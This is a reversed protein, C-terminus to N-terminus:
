SDDLYENVNYFAKGLFYCLLAVKFKKLDHIQRINTNLKNYLKLGIYNPSKEFLTTSHVPITLSNSYRTEYSHFVSNTQFNHLNTKVHIIIEMMYISPVTLINKSIFTSKCSQRSSLRYINRLSRKQLKFIRIMHPSLGWFIIGYKIRSYIYGYYYSMLTELNCFSRLQLLVYCSSSLTSCLNDIHKEWNLTGDIHLGLFKTIQVQELSTHGIKLLVCESEM